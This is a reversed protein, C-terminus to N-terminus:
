LSPSSPLAFGIRAMVPPQTDYDFQAALEVNAVSGHKDPEPADPEVVLEHIHADRWARAYRKSLTRVASGCACSEYM